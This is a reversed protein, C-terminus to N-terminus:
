PIAVVPNAAAAHSDLFFLQELALPAIGIFLFRAPHAGFPDDAVEPVRHVHMSFGTVPYENGM